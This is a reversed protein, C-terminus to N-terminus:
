SWEHLEINLSMIHQSQFKWQLGKWMWHELIVLSNCFLNLIKVDCFFGKVNWMCWRTWRRVCAHLYKRAESRSDFIWCNIRVSPWRQNATNVAHLFASSEIWFEDQKWMIWIICVGVGFSPLMLFCSPWLSNKRQIIWWRSIWAKPTSSASAIFFVYEVNYIWLVNRQGKNVYKGHKDHPEKDM